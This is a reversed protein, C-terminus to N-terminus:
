FFRPCRIAAGRKWDIYDVRPSTIGLKFSIGAHLSYFHDYSNTLPLGDLFYTQTMNFRPYIILDTKRNFRYRFMVGIHDTYLTWHFNQRYNNDGGSVTVDANLFNFGYVLYPIIRKPRKKYSFVQQLNLAGFLGVSKMTTEYQYTGKGNSSEASSLAGGGSLRCFGSEAGITFFKVPVFTLVASIGPSVNGQVSSKPLHLGGLVNFSFRKSTSSQAFVAVTSLLFVFCYICVIRIASFHFKMSIKRM